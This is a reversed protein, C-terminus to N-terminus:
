LLINEPTTGIFRPSSLHDYAPHQHRGIQQEAAVSGHRANESFSGIGAGPIAWNRFVWYGKKRLIVRVKAGSRRPKEQTWVNPVM